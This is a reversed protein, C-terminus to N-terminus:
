NDNKPVFLGVINHSIQSTKLNILKGNLVSELLLLLEQM